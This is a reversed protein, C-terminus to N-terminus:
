NVAVRTAPNLDNNPDTLVGAPFSVHLAKDETDLCLVHNNDGDGLDALAIPKVTRQVGEENEVIVSYLVREVEGPESGDALTIGGAWVVRIAQVVRQDPCVSGRNRRMGLGMDKAIPSVREAMVISPGLALPTVAVTASKFDVGRDLSYLHGSVRVQAPPDIGENGYEGILLVTRLEGADTAPLLSVCHTEGIKGAETLVTFDGAQMTTYDIEHSFIVPMGDKGAGGRCIINATRPLTNDLGFFASLLTAPGSGAQQPLGIDITTDTLQKNSVGSVTSCAGLLLASLLSVTRLSKDFLNM